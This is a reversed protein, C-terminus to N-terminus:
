DLISTDIRAKERLGDVAASIKNLRGKSLAEVPNEFVASSLLLSRIVPNQPFVLAMNHVRRVLFMLSNFDKTGDVTALSTSDHQSQFHELADYFDCAKFYLDFWTRQKWDRGDRDAVQKAQSLSSWAVWTAAISVLLAVLPILLSVFHNSHHAVGSVPQPLYSYYQFLM